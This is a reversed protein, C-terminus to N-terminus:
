AFSNRLPLRSRYFEASVFEPLSFMPRRHRASRTSHFITDFRSVDTPPMLTDHRECIQMAYYYYM